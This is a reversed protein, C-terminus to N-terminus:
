ELTLRLPPDGPRSLLVTESPEIAIVTYEGLRDGASVLTTEGRYFLAAQVPAGGGPDVFGHLQPMGVRSDPTPLPEPPPASLSSLDSPTSEPVPAPPEGPDEARAARGSRPSHAPEVAEAELWAALRELRPDAALREGGGATSSSVPSPWFVTISLSLSGVGGRVTRQAREPRLPWGKAEVASLFRGLRAPEGRASIRVESGATGSPPRILPQLRVASLEIGQDEAIAVLAERLARASQPPADREALRKTIGLLRERGARETWAASAARASAAAAENRADRGASVARQEAWVFWAALGFLGLLLFRRRLRPDGIM